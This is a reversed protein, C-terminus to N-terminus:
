NGHLLGRLENLKATIDNIIQEIKNDSVISSTHFADYIAQAYETRRNKMADSQDAPNEYEKLVQVTCTRIDNSMALVAYTTIYLRLIEDFAFECQAEISDLPIGKAVTRDYLALKRTSYTWQALGYGGTDHAFSARATDRDGYRYSGDTVQATYEADSLGLVSNMRNELNNPMFSSEAWFNGLLAAIAVDSLDTHSKLWDWCARANQQNPITM